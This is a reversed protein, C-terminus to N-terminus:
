IHDKENRLSTPQPEIWSFVDAQKLVHSMYLQLSHYAYMVITELHIYEKHASGHSVMCRVAYWLWIVGQWDCADELRGSWRTGFRLPLPSLNTLVYLKRMYGMMHTDDSTLFARWMRTDTKIRDIADASVRTKTQSAYWQNFSTFLTLYHSRYDIASRSFNRRIDNMAETNM